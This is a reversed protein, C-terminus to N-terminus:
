KIELTEFSLKPGSNYLVDKGTVISKHNVREPDDPDIFLREGWSSVIIRGEETFGTVVISHEHINQKLSGDECELKGRKLSVLVTKGSDTIERFNEPCLYNLTKIEAQFGHESMFTKIYENRTFQNTGNGSADEAPSYSGSIGDEFPNYDGFSVETGLFYNDCSSYVDTLLCEYNLTHDSKYMPYGFAKEFGEPDNEFHCMIGNVLSVFGCGESNMKELYSDFNDSTVMSNNKSAIDYLMIYESSNKDINHPAGQDGGYRLPIKTNFVATHKLEYESLPESSKLADSSIRDPSCELQSGACKLHSFDSEPGYTYGYYSKLENESMYCNKDNKRLADNVTLTSETFTILLNTKLNRIYSKITEISSAIMLKIFATKRYHDINKFYKYVSKLQSKFDDDTNEFKKVNNEYISNISNMELNIKSVHVPIVNECLGKIKNYNPQGNATETGPNSSDPDSSINNESIGFIYNYLENQKAINKLGSIHHRIDALKFYLSDRDSEVPVSICEPTLYKQQTECYDDIINQVSGLFDSIDESNKRFHEIREIVADNLCGSDQYTIKKINDLATNIDNISYQFGRAAVSIDKLEKFNVKLNRKM